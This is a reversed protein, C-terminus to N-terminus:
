LEAEKMTEAQIVARCHNVAQALLRKVQTPSLGVRRAIEAAPLEDRRSMTLILRTRPELTAVALSLLRRREKASLVREPDRDDTEIATTTTAEAELRGHNALRRREELALNHVVRYLFARPNELDGVEVRASLRLFAAQVVDEPEPPGPGFRRHVYGCIEDWHRRYLAALSVDEAQPADPNVWVTRLRNITAEVGM